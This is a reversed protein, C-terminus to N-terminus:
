SMLVSGSCQPAVQWAQGTGAPPLAVHVAPTQPKVQLLPRVLHPLAQTFTCFSWSLQPEHPLIQAAFSTQEEPEHVSSQPVRVLQLPVHTLVLVSGSWQPLQVVTQGWSGLEERVHAPPL